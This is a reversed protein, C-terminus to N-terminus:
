PATATSIKQRLDASGNARTTARASSVNAIAVKGSLTSIKDAVPGAQRTGAAIRRTIPRVQKLRNKYRKGSPRKTGLQDRHTAKVQITHCTNCYQSGVKGERNVLQDPQSSTSM